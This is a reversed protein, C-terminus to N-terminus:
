KPCVLQKDSITASFIVYILTDYFKVYYGCCELFGELIEQEGDYCSMFCIFADCITRM